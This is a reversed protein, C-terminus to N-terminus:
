MHHGRYVNMYIYIYIYIYMYICIYLYACVGVFAYMVNVCAYTIYM